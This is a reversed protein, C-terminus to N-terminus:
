NVKRRFNRIGEGQFLNFPKFDQWAEGKQIKYSPNPLLNVGGWVCVCVYVGAASHHLPRIPTCM